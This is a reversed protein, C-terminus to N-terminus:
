RENNKEREHEELRKRCGDCIMHRDGRVINRKYEGFSLVFGCVECTCDRALEMVKGEMDEPREQEELLRIIVKATGVNVFVFDSMDNHAAKILRKLRRVVIERDTM